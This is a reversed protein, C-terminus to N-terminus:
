TASGAAVRDQEIDDIMADTIDGTPYSGEFCGKCFQLDGNGAARVADEMQEVSQYVVADAGIEQAIMEDSRDRAIFDRKSSMDIGYFCPFKLPPSYSAFYVKSAGMDRAIRVMHRSTNGRVISDDMIIVRKGEFESRIPNLKARITAQRAKDNPMIFTRGVYRNKVFGERCRLGLEEAMTQAATRASEPVPIVVDAELGTERFRHAMRRGMEMRAEYVSTGDLFTDPRAFYVYEFICPRHPKAGVKRFQPVRDEGIWLMEGAELDRVIEYGAVDLVVSESAVAYYTGEETERKGFICPKIGFPDRFAYMGQSTIGVVSYAGKVKEYVEAVGAEVDELGVQEAQRRMLADAFVYLAVELDCNSGLPINRENFYTRKLEHFNTVNGNHAMAVGLPYDLWFPQVDTDEGLGVTPYRVHGVALNGRLRQLHKDSFVERVLGLGKKAQFKGHFTVAGAADQGRHQIAVLGNIVDHITDSDPPGFISIFGCMGQRSSVM